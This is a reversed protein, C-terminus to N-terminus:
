GRMSRGARVRIIWKEIEVVVFVTLGALLVYGWHELTL